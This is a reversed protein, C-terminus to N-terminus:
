INKWVKKSNKIQNLWYKIYKNLNEKDKFSHYFDPKGKKGTFGVASPNGKEDYGIYVVANFEPYEVIEPNVLDNYYLERVKLKTEFTNNM